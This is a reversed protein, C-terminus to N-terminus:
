PWGWALLETETATRLTQLEAKSLLATLRAVDARNFGNLVVAVRDWTGTGDRADALAAKFKAIKEERTPEAAVATAGQRAVVRGQAVLSAFARNGISSTAVLPATARPPATVREEPRDHVLEHPVSRIM